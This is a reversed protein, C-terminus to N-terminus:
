FNEARISPFLNRRRMRHSFTAAPRILHVALYVFWVFAFEFVSFAYRFNPPADMASFAWHEVVLGNEFRFIDFFVNRGSRQGKGPGM